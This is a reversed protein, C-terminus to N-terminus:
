LPALRWALAAPVPGLDPLCNSPLTLGLKPKPLPFSATGVGAWGVRGGVGRAEGTGHEEGGGLM